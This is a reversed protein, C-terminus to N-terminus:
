LAASGLVCLVRYYSKNKRADKKNRLLAKNAQQSGITYSFLM